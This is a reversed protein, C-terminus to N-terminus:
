WWLHNFGCRAHILLSGALMVSASVRLQKIKVAALQSCPWVTNKDCSTVAQALGQFTSIQLSKCLANAISEMVWAMSSQSSLWLRFASWATGWSTAICLGIYVRRSCCNGGWLTACLTGVQGWDNYLTINDSSEGIKMQEPCTFSIDAFVSVAFVFVKVSCSREVLVFALVYVTFLVRQPVRCSMCNTTSKM